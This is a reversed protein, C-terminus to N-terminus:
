NAPNPPHNRSKAFPPRPLSGQCIHAQEGDFLRSERIDEALHHMCPRCVSRFKGTPDKLHVFPSVPLERPDPM